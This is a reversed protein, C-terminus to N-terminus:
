KLLTEVDMKPPEKPAAAAAQLVNEDMQGLQKSFQALENATKQLDGLEGMGKNLRVRETDLALRERLRGLDELEKKMLGDMQDLKALASDYESSLPKRDEVYTQCSKVIAAAKERSFSRGGMQIPLRDEDDSKEIAKAMRKGVNDIEDLNTAMAEQRKAIEARRQRLKELRSNREVIHREIQKDQALLYGESDAAIEEPTWAKEKAPPPPPPPKNRDCGGASLLTWLLGAAVIIIGSHKM